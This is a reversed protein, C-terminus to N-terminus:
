KSYQKRSANWLDGTGSVATFSLSGTQMYVVRERAFMQRLGTSSKLDLSIPIYGPAYVYISDANELSPFLVPPSLRLTHQIGDPSTYVLSVVAGHCMRGNYVDRVLLCRPKVCLAWLHRWAQLHERNDAYAQPYRPFLAILLIAISEISNSITFRAGGGLLLMGLALHSAMHNGYTKASSVGHLRRLRKMTAVNGSGAVVLSASICITDLCTQASARTLSPEYGLASRSALAEVEDFLDLITELADCNETGAYKLGIAFCSGTMIHMRARTLDLSLGPESESELGPPLNSQVWKRSASISDFMILARMLTRWLLSFPDVSRLIQASVPVALRNAAPQYNTGLFVLGLAAVAGLDSIESTKRSDSPNLSLRGLAEAASENQSVSGDRAGNIIDTLADLLHLDALTRTSLGQGLAVLGLAFGAALSYCEATSETPDAGELRTSAVTLSAARIASLENLMVESIRRNQSSMFLLGLGLAAAAQTGHSLLMLESSGPPLLTPIHLSLIKCVAADETGRHACACGLLLAISTLGHRISLYKFVQWPPVDCLPGNSVHDKHDNRLRHRNAASVATDNSLLGMGLIFGAHSALSDKYRRQADDEASSELDSPESPWNLLVWSPHAQRVQDRDLSLAALVGSHFLPWSTDCDASAEWLSESKHGRFRAAVRPHDIPLADQPNLAHTSYSFAARGVSLALARCALHDLYQTRLSDAPDSSSAEAPPHQAYTTASISLMRDVEDIRLDRSFASHGIECADSIIAGPGNDRMTQSAPQELSQESLCAIDESCRDRIAASPAALPETSNSRCFSVNRSTASSSAYTNAVLDYRGLLALADRPWMTTCENRSREVIAHIIWQVDATLQSFLRKHLEVDVLSQFVSAEPKQAAAFRFLVTSTAGLLDLPNRAANFSEADDIAFLQCVLGLTPFPALLNAGCKNSCLSMVWKSFSPFVASGVGEERPRPLLAPLSDVVELGLGDCLCAQYQSQAGNHLAFRLLLAGVAALRPQLEDKRLAADEFVLRLAFLVADARSTLESRVRQQLAVPPQGKDSGYVLLDSVRQLEQEANRAGAASALVSRRLMAGAPKSLVLSLSDMVAATLRSVRIKSSLLSTHQGSATNRVVSVLHGDSYDISVIDGQSAHLPLEIPESSCAAGPALVLNGAPTLILLDDLQDRISSVPAIARAAHRFVEGFAASDLGVVQGVQACLVCIIDAGSFSQIICLQAKPAAQRRSDGRQRREKWCMSLVVEAHMQRQERFADVAYSPGPSDNFSVRGLISSRRDNKMATGFGSRRRSAAAMAAASAAASSRRQVSLSAQRQSGKRSVSFAHGKQVGTSSSFNGDFDLDMDVDIGNEDEDEDEDENDGECGFGIARFGHESASLLDPTRATKFASDLDDLSQRHDVVVSRYVVYRQASSDWCLVYQSAASGGQRSVATDVLSISPENFIPIHADSSCGARAPTPSLLLGKGKQKYIRGPDASRDIGLMKFEGRPSQLSFITPLSSAFVSQEPSESSSRQILLGTQLAHASHVTFPLSVAFAEGSHYHIDLTDSYFLCLAVTSADGNKGTRFKTFLAHEVCASPSSREPDLATGSDLLFSRVFKGNFTWQISSDGDVLLAKHSGASVDDLSAVLTSKAM